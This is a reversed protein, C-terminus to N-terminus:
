GEWIRILKDRARSPRFKTKRTFEQSAEKSWLPRQTPTAAIWCKKRKAEKVHIPKSAKCMYKARIFTKM